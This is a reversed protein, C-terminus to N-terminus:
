VDPCEYMRNLREIDRRSLGVDQGIVDQYAPDKTVITPKDWDLAFSVAHYHMVSRYDYPVGFHSVETDNFKEFQLFSGPSINDWMIEVYDDRDHSSQMHYFGLTHLMEHQITGTLM